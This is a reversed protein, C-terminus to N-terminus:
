KSHSADTEKKGASLEQEPASLGCRSFAGRSAHHKRMSGDHHVPFKIQATMLAAFMLLCGAISRLRLQEHLLLVSFLMGFVSEFSMLLAAMAPPLYKQCVNQLLFALLTSMVGLYLMSMWVDPRRLASIPFTSAAAASIWSCFAACLIQIVTLTVPDDHASYQAIYMIQLAFCLGCVITLADGKNLTFNDQLSLLGIGTVCLVAAIISRMDPRRRCFPWNLFPVLIVYITTLFANKGATTYKCGVTQFLYAAFLFIGIVLGHLWEKKAARRLKKFFIVSLAAGAVSFRIAMMYLAPIDDLSNKVVVFAFGWIVTAAIIGAAAFFAISKKNVSFRNPQLIDM